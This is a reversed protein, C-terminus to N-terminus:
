YMSDMECKMAELWKVSDTDRMAEDFGTPDDNDTVQDHEEDIHFGYKQPEHREWSIRRLEHGLPQEIAARKLPRSPQDMNTQNEQVEDLDLRSEQSSIGM